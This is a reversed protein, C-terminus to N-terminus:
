FGFYFCVKEYATVCSILATTHLNTGYKRHHLLILKQTTLHASNKFNHHIIPFLHFYFAKLCMEFKLTFSKDLNLIFRIYLVYHNCLSRCVYM